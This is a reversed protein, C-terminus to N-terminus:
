LRNENNLEKNIEHVRKMFSKINRDYRNRLKRSSNLHAVAWNLANREELLIYKRSLAM